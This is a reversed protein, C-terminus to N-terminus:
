LGAPQTTAAVWTVGGDTSRFVGAGRTGALFTSGSAALSLIGTNTPQTTAATWTVGGDTSRYVGPGDLGALM